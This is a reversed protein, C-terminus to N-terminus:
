NYFKNLFHIHNKAFADAPLGDNESVFRKCFIIERELSFSKIKAGEFITANRRIIRNLCLYLNTRHRWLAEHGGYLQLLKSNHDLVEIWMMTVDDTSISSISRGNKKLLAFETWTSLSLLLSSAISIDSIHKELTTMMKSIDRKMFHFFDDCILAMYDLQMSINEDFIKLVYSRVHNTVWCKHAWGNYNSQQLQAAEHCIQFEELAMCLLSEFAGVLPETHGCVFVDVSGALHLKQSFDLEISGHQTKVNSKDMFIAECKKTFIWRRHAYTESSKPHLKLAFKTLILEKELNEKVFHQLLLHKRRSWATTYDPCCLVLCKTIDNISENTIDNSFETYAYYFVLPVALLNIGVNGDEIQIANEETLLEFITVEINNIDNIDMLM